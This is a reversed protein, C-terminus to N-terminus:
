KMQSYFVAGHLSLITKKSLFPYLNIVRENFKEDSHPIKGCANFIELSKSILNKIEEVSLKPYKRRLAEEYKDHSMLMTPSILSAAYDQMDSESPENQSESKGFLNKFFNM